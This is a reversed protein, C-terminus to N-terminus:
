HLCCHKYKRGSGCPCPDNRGVKKGKRVYPAADPRRQELFYLYLRHVAPEILQQQAEVQEDSLTALQRFGDETAFFKLPQICQETMAADAATLTDWLKIGRLFGTCWEDVITYTKGNAERELFLAEYHGQQMDQMVHNYFAFVTHTFEELEGEDPWAPIQDERGWIAPMWRSPLITDPACALAAVFGDLESVDLVSEDHGYKALYYNLVDLISGSEPKEPRDLPDFGYLEAYDPKPTSRETRFGLAIEVEELDGACTLDVCDRAFFQRIDDIAEAAALDLCCGILLGNLTRASEDPSQMYDRYHQIVQERCAPHRKAINALGDVAIVRAFEKYRPANLCAVLPDIAPEGLMGMVTSLEPLAWDDECLRDFQAILPITAESSGLQGLTRWAHLPAWVQSSASDAQDLTEDAVLELLAPVDADTFGHQLYDPWEGSRDAEGLKLLIQTRDTPNTAM